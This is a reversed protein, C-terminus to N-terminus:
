LNVWSNLAQLRFDRGDHNLVVSDPLIEAVRVGAAVSQGVRATEGNILVSSGEGARYDHGSYLLTPIADKRQQSLDGLFPAPHDGAGERAMEERARALMAELDLAQENEGAGAPAESAPAVPAERAPEPGSSAEGGPSGEAVGAEARTVGDGEPDQSDKQDGNQDGTRDGDRYLAAVEPAVERDVAREVPAPSALPAIPERAPPAVPALDARQGDPGTATGPEAPTSPGAGARPGSEAERTDGASSDGSAEPVPRLLLWAILGLAAVLALGLLGQRWAGPASAAGAYHATAVGPVDGPAARERQSRNIADLILSM